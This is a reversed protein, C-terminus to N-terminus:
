KLGGSPANGDAPKPVAAIIPVPNTPVSAGLGLLAQITALQDFFDVNVEIIAAVLKLTGGLPLKPEDARKIAGETAVEILGLGSKIAQLILMKGDLETLAGPKSLIDKQKLLWDVFDYLATAEDLLYERVRVTKGAIEVEVSNLTFADQMAAAEVAHSSPASTQGEQKQM